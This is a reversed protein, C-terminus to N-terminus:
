AHTTVTRRTEFWPGVRDFIGGVTAAAQTSVLRARVSVGLSAFAAGVAVSHAAGDAAFRARTLVNKGDVDESLAGFRETDLQRLVIVECDFNAQNAPTADFTGAAGAGTAVTFTTPFPVTDRENSQATQGLAKQRAGYDSATIGRHDGRLAGLVGDTTQGYRTRTGQTGPTSFGAAALAGTTGQPVGTTVLAMTANNWYRTARTYTSAVGAGDLYSSTHNVTDRTGVFIGAAAGLLGRKVKRDGELVAGGHATTAISSDADSVYRKAM